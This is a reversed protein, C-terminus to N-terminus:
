LKFCNNLQLKNYMILSLQTSSINYIFTNFQNVDLYFAIYIFTNKKLAM